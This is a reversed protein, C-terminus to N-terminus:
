RGLGRRRLGAPGAAALAAGPAPSRDSRWQQCTLQVALAATGLAALLLGHMHDADQDFWFLAGVLVPLTALDVVLLPLQAKPPPPRRGIRALILLVLLPATSGAVGALRNRTSYGSVYATKGGVELRVLKQGWLTATVSQGTKLGLGFYDDAGLEARRTGGPLGTLVVTHTYYGSTAKGNPNQQIWQHILASVRAPRSRLCPASASAAAPCPVADEPGHALLVVGWYGVLVVALLALVLSSWRM